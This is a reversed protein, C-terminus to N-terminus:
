KPCIVVFVDYQHFFEAQTSISVLLFSHSFQNCTDILTCRFNQLDRFFRDVRSRTQCHAKPLLILKDQNQSKM